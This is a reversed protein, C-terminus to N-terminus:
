QFFEQMLAAKAMEADELQRHMAFKSKDAQEVFVAFQNQLEIPPCIVQLDKLIQLNINKQASEPAQEELIKQFFVFLYYVFLQNTRKESTFGVISDPFCADFGLIGTKAINAAITICLTGKPWMKSQKLGIESYTASYETIYLGSGAVEGTQILPYEGGLLEPANRPRHKSVGRNLEGLKGLPVKEWGMPNTVPDGFMEIFQSKVLDDAMKLAEQRKRRIADAKDLIAAIRRQEDPHPLKIPLEEIDSRTVQLFTAGKGKSKLVDAFAEVWHWLYNPILKEINKPRLAAVGRGLCYKKDSWNKDGITARICLIIDGIESIKSPSSTSRTPAPFEEGLDGAGAILPVGNAEYNYSDGSPAQGMIIHCVDGLKM